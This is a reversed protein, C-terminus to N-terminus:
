FPLPADELEIAEPKRMARFLPSRRLASVIYLFFLFPVILILSVIASMAIGPDVPLYLALKVLVYFAILNIRLSRILAILWGLLLCYGIGGWGFLFHGDFFLYPNAGFGPLAVGTVHEVVM